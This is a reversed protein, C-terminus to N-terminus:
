FAGSTDSNEAYVLRQEKESEFKAVVSEAFLKELGKQYTVINSIHKLTMQPTRNDKVRNTGANYMALASIENGGVDICYRLFALGQKASTYPDFFDKETFNPFSSSNLQFLGRDVSTNSNKNVAYIKYRSENYALSFALTPPIDYKHAYELVALAIEKSQTIDTYFDIVAKRAPLYGYLDLGKDSEAGEKVIDSHTQWTQATKTEKGLNTEDKTTTNQSHLEQRNDETPIFFAIFFSLGFLTLIFLMTNTLFKGQTKLFKKLSAM